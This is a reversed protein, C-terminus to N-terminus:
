PPAGPQGFAPSAVFAAVATIQADDLVGVFSPMLKSKSGTRVQQEVLGPTVRTRFEGASLDRVGLRSAMAAHPRGDPGHCNACMSQYLARGDRATSAPGDPGCGTVPVMAVIAAILWRTV